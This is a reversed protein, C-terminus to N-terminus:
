EGGPSVLDKESLRRVGSCDLQSLLSTVSGYGPIELTRELECLPILVFAREHMRPHPLDLETSHIFQDDYLLLDIDIVRPGWRRESRQRGMEDEISLLVHLLALPALGTEIQVVANIFEGQQEDGWPPTCYLSSRRLIRISDTDSLRNIALRLQSVPDQLNSGLGLWAKM